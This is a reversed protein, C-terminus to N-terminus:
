VTEMVLDSYRVIWQVKRADSEPEWQDESAQVSPMESPMEEM